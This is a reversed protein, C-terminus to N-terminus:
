KSFFYSVMENFNDQSQLITDKLYDKTNDYEKIGRYYFAKHENEIIFPMINNKLCEKFMVLRGVRGNGDSFPHIKEFAVHFDIINELSVELNRQYNKVLNTLESEVLKPRTTTSNGVFNPHKKFGGIVEDHATQEYTLGSGEIRNSNYSFKIQILHYIGNKIANKREHNLKEILKTLM